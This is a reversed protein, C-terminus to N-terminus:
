MVFTTKQLFFGRPYFLLAIHLPNPHIPYHESPVPDSKNCCSWNLRKCIVKGERNVTFTFNCEGINKDCCLANPPASLTVHTSIKKPELKNDLAIYKYKPVYGPLLKEIEKNTDEQIKRLRKTEERHKLIVNEVDKRRQEIQSKFEEKWIEEISM